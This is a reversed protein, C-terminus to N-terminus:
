KTSISSKRMNDLLFSHVNSWRLHLEFVSHFILGPSNRNTKYSHNSLPGLSYHFASFSARTDLFFSILKEEVILHVWLRMYRWLRYLHGWAGWDWAPPRNSIGSWMTRLRQPCDFRWHDRCIHCPGPCRNHCDKIFHRSDASTIHSHLQM